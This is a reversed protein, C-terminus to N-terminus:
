IVYEHIVQIKEMDTTMGETITQATVIAKMELNWNVSQVSNLYIVTDDLRNM